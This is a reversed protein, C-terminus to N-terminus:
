TLAEDVLSEVAAKVVEAPDDRGNIRRLVSTGEALATYGDAFSKADLAGSL